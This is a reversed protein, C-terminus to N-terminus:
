KDPFVFNAGNLPKTLSLVRLDTTNNYVELLHMEQEIEQMLQYLEKGQEQEIGQEQEEQEYDGVEVM